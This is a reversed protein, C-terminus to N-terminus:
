FTVISNSGCYLAVILFDNIVEFKFSVFKITQGYENRRNTNTNRSKSYSVMILKTKNGHIKLGFHRSSRELNLFTEKM